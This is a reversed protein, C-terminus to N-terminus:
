WAIRGHGTEVASLEDQGTRQVQLRVGTDRIAPDVSANDNERFFPLVEIAGVGAAEVDGHM